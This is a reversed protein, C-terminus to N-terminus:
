VLMTIPNRLMAMVDETFATMLDGDIIRHDAATVVPLTPRAAVEGGVVSPRIQISGFGVIAAEPSRIIPSAYRGGLSGYNTITCTGGQMQAATITKDRAARGLGAIADALEFLDLRDVDHVVPVVLGNSTAVAFGVNVRDMVTITAAEMDISSNVLPYRRLAKAVAMMFFAMPTLHEARDAHSTKLASRAELLATADMEDAGHIHPITWSREMAEATVRRIGRLPHTGPAMQGLVPPISPAAGTASNVSSSPSPGPKALAPGEHNVSDLDSELIRGSPGSGTVETLDLGRDLAIRRVSPSAKPRRGTKPRSALPAPPTMEEVPASAPDEEPAAKGPESGSIVVLVDGVNAMDGEAFGLSTITGAVPAPLQTQSKDTLIEVLPQDRRIVEGVAVLWEVIEAEDLGEGVDPLRFETTM